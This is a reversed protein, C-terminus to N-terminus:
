WNTQVPRGLATCVEYFSWKYSVFLRTTLNLIHNTWQTHERAHLQYQCQPKLYHPNLTEGPCNKVGRPVSTYLLSYCRDQTFPLHLIEPIYWCCICQLINNFFVVAKPKHYLRKSMEQKNEEFILADNAKLVCCLQLPLLSHTRFAISYLLLYFGKVTM